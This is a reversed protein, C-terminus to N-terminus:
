PPYAVEVLASQPQAAVPPQPIQSSCATLRAAAVVALLLAIRRLVMSALCQASSGPGCDNEREERRKHADRARIPRPGSIAKDRGVFSRIVDRRFHSQTSRSKATATTAQAPHADIGGPRAAMSRTDTCPAFSSSADSTASLSAVIGLGLN